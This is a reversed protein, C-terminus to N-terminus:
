WMVPYAPLYRHRLPTHVSTLCYLIIRETLSFILRSLWSLPTMVMYQTPVTHHGLQTLLASASALREARAATSSSSGTMGSLSAGSLVVAGSPSTVSSASRASSFVGVPDCDGPSPSSVSPVSVYELEYSGSLLDTDAAVSLAAVALAEPM